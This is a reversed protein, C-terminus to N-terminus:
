ISADVLDIYDLTEESLGIKEGLTYVNRQYEPFNKVFLRGANEVQPMLIMILTTVLGFVVILSLSISLIRKKKLKKLPENEFWRVLVNLIFAFIFGITFPLFLNWLFEFINIIWIYNILFVFLTVGLCVILLIDRFKQKEM